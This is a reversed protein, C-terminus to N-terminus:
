NNWSEDYPDHPAPVPRALSVDLFPIIGGNVPDKTRESTYTGTVELWTDPQLVPPIRGTLGVKVPQADAACCNLAMRVLYPTGSRDLAVFGTIRIRRDGLSRGQDYAARGAYDVLSLPLPDGAPLAPYGFPAQLATGTRMASYSGLAPPAVLILALLPLVLLWSVRPERHAHGHGHGHEHGGGSGHEHGTGHERTDSHDDEPGSGPTVRRGRVEYWVTAVATVILVVGAGLLLPRLGAKVYRLYVDTAGAHLVSAGVLFLVAAQAQRNM